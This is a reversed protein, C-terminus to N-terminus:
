SAAEKASLVAETRLPWSVAESGSTGGIKTLAKKVPRRVTHESIGPRRASARNDHGALLEDFLGRSASALAEGMAFNRTVLVAVATGVRADGASMEDGDRPSASGM